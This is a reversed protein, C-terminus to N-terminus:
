DLHNKLKRVCPFRSKEMASSSFIIRLPRVGKELSTHSDWESRMLLSPPFTERKRTKEWTPSRDILREPHRCRRLLCSIGMYVVYSSRTDRKRSSLIFFFLRGKCDGNHRARTKKKLGKKHKRWLTGKISMKCFLIDERLLLLKISFNPWSKKQRAFAFLNKGRGEARYSFCRRHIRMKRWRWRQHLHPSQLVFVCLRSSFPPHLSTLSLFNGDTNGFPSPLSKLISRIYDVRRGKTPRIIRPAYHFM